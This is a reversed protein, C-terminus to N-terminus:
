AFCSPRDSQALTSSCFRFSSFAASAFSVPMASALTFRIAAQAAAEKVGGPLGGGGPHDDRLADRRARTGMAYPGEARLPHAARGFGRRRPRTPDFRLGGERWILDLTRDDMTWDVTLHGDLGSLSGFKVANLALEHVALGLIEAAKPQLRVAPGAIRLRNGERAAHALLEDAILQGLDTGQTHNILASQVRAVADLRSELHAAYEEVSGSTRATRRAISRIVGLTNRLQHRLEIVATPLTAERWQLDEVEISCGLWERVRGNEEFPTAHTQFFRYTTSEMDFLRHTAQFRGRRLARRWELRLAEQDGPHVALLWGDGLSEQPSLGTYDAWRPSSWSWGGTADARWILQPVGDFSSGDRAVPM